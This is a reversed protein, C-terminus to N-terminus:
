GNKVKTKDPTLAWFARCEKEPVPTKYNSELVRESNGLMIAVKAKDKHHCILFSAATHRLVDQPWKGLADRLARRHRRLTIDPPAINDDPKTGRAALRLWDVATQHLPVIRHKRVKSIEAGISVVKQKLDVASWKLATLEEPRIGAFLGLAFYALSAQRKRAAQLLKKAEDPNFREAPKPDIKPSSMRLMPNDKIYGRRFCVDFMSGLRGMNSKRTTLAEKRNAFWEELDAVGLKDIFIEERGAAFKNLYSELDGLYRERLNESRRWAMTQAIAQKLTRREVPAADLKGTKYAEWITRLAIGEQKAESYITMLDNREEPTINLWAQGTQRHESKLEAMAADAQAKSKFWKRVRKPGEYYDLVYEVRKYRPDKARRDLKRVKM